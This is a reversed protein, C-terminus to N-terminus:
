ELFQQLINGGERTVIEYYQFIVTVVLVTGAGSGIGGLLDASAAIVGIVVGGLESAIPIYRSLEHELATDRFGRM